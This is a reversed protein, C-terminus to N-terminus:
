RSAAAADERGLRRLLDVVRERVERALARRDGHGLGATMIPRGVAVRIPGPRLHLSDAPLIRGPGDLAIPVLPVGADIAALFGGSRFPGLRGDRSRTGEPFIMVSMGDAVRRRCLELNRLSRRRQDRPVFIMGMARLAWGLLPVRRLEDKVIFILPAPLASVLAPIDVASQHNAAFFHPRSLDVNGLGSVEVRIGCPRLLGPAWLRPMAMPLNTGGTVGRAVLVAVAWGGTWVVAYAARVLNLLARLIGRM